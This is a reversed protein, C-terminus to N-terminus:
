ARHWAGGRGEGGRGESHRASHYYCWNYCRVTSAWAREKKGVGCAGGGLIGLSFAYLLIRCYPVPWAHEGEGRARGQGKGENMGGLDYSCWPGLRDGTM